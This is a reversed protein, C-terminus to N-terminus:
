KNRGKSSLLEDIPDIITNSPKQCNGNGRKTMVSQLKCLETSVTHTHWFPFVAHVVSCAALKLLKGALRLAFKMHELYTENVSNPHKTFLNQRM